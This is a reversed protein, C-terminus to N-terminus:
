TMDLINLFFAETGYVKGINDGKEPEKEPVQLVMRKWGRSRILVRKCCLAPALEAKRDVVDPPVTMHAGFAAAVAAKGTWILDDKVIAPTM